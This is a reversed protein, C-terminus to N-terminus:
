VKTQLVTSLSCASIHSFNQSHSPILLCSSSLLSSMGCDGFPNTLHVCPAGFNINNCVFLGSNARKELPADVIDAVREAAPAGFVLTAYSAVVALSFTFAKM